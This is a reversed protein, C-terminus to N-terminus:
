GRRSQIYFVVLYTDFIAIVNNDTIRIDKPKYGQFKPIYFSYIYKGDKVAYVDVVQNRYYNVLTENESKLASLVYLKDKYTTFIRNVLNPPTAQTTIKTKLNDKNNTLVLAAKRVTDITKIKYIANLNTDLCLIEGRYYYMYYLKQNLSSYQLQGDTCFYGDIQKELKLRKNITCNTLNLKTIQRTKEGNLFSKERVIASQNPLVFSDDFKLNVIHFYVNTKKAKIFEFEGYAGNSVYMTSDQLGLNYIGVNSHFSSTLRLAHRRVKKLKFDVTFFQDINKLDKLYVVSDPSNALYLSNSKLDYDAELKLLPQFFHRNFGNHINKKTCVFLYAIIGFSIILVLGINFAKKKM